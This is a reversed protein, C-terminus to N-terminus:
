IFIFLFFRSPANIVSQIVNPMPSMLKDTVTDDAFYVTSLSLLPFVATFSKPSLFSICHVHVNSLSLAIIQAFIKM